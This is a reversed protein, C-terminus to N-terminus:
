NFILDQNLKTINLIFKDAYKLRKEYDSKEFFSIKINLFYSDFFNSLEKKVDNLFVDEVKSYIFILDVWNKYTLDLFFLDWLLFDYLFFYREKLDKLFNIMDFLFIKFIVPKIEKTVEIKWRNWNKNKSIIWAQELNDLQKKIAPFSQSLKNELERASLWEEVFILYKLINSKTKSWFLLDVNM